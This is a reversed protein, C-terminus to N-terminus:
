GHRRGGRRHFVIRHLLRREEDYVLLDARVIEGGRKRVREMRWRLRDGPMSQGEQLLFRMWVSRSWLGATDLVEAAEGEYPFGQAWTKGSPNVLATHGSCEYRVLGRGTRRWLRRGHKIVTQRGM